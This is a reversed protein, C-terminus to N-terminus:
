EEAPLEKIKINRFWVEDGHDQLCIYGEDAMGYDKANRYKSKAVKEFWDESGIEYEVYKEGNMWHECKYTGTTTERCKLVFENWEGAPRTTDKDAAYLGFLWGAKQPHTGKVNDLLQAEPGSNYPPGDTEVVKFIIGSNGGASIKWDIRLEFSGYKKRTIIDGRGKRFLAGDEVVWTAPFDDKRYGRFHESADKGDFLLVWGDAKEADTLTNPASEEAFALPIVCMSLLSLLFKKM